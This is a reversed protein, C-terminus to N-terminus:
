LLRDKNKIVGIYILIITILTFLHCIGNYNLYWINFKIFIPIIGIIQIIIGIIFYFKNIYNSKIISYLSFLVISLAYLLMVINDLRNINFKISISFVIFMIIAVLFSIIMVNKLKINCFIYLLLNFTISFLFYLIYWLITNLSNSMIFGHVIVGLFSDICIFFYFWKFKSNKIIFIIIISTIFLFLNTIATSFDYGSTLM